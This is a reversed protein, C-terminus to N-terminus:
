GTWRLGRVSDVVFEDWGAQSRQEARLPEADEAWSPQEYLSLMLQMPYDPSQEVRKVEAGNVSFVVGEPSWELAYRQWERADVPVRVQEFDDTVSPDGFPHIGVGVLTHDDHVDRGFIEMLCLEASREPADEYGIMWLASMKRPDATVKARLEIRAFHPTYLRQPQQAERVVAAPNFRHQGVGSGVEGAFVGTQISSARSSGDFEPCWPPQDPHIRLHLAGARLEHRAAAQERSSWQPLYYPLWREPALADGDFTEDFELERAGPM